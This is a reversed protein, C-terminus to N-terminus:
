AWFSFDSYDSVFPALALRIALGSLLIVILPNAMLIDKVNTM